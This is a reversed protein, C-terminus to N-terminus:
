DKDTRLSFHRPQGGVFAVIDDHLKEAIIRAFDDKYSFKKGRRIIEDAVKAARLLDDNVVFRYYKSKIAFDLEAEASLMRREVEDQDLTDGRLKWREMWTAFDPPIVFIAVLKKCVKHYEEVGQVDVDGLAIKKQAAIRSLEATTTGYVRGHVIKAEFYKKALLNERVKEDNIFYYNVGNIEGERPARPITTIIRAYKDTKLLERIISDKGASAVGVILAVKMKAVLKEAPEPARYDEVLEMIERSETTEEM